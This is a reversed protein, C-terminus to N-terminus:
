QPTLILNVASAPVCIKRESTFISAKFQLALYAGGSFWRQLKFALGKGSELSVNVEEYHNLISRNMGVGEPLQDEAQRTM